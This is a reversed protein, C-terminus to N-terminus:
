ETFASSPPTFPTGSPYRCVNSLRFEDIYGSTGGTSIPGAGVRGWVSAAIESATSVTGYLTGDKYFYYAGAVSDFTMAIHYWVDAAVTGAASVTGNALNNSSGNSSLSKLISFDSGSRYGQVKAGYGTVNALSFLDVITTNAFLPSWRVFCEATWASENINLDGCVINENGSSVILSASGFKAQATSITPTGTRTWTNGYEDTFTTSGNTGDLHLLAKATSPVIVSGHAYPNVIMGM